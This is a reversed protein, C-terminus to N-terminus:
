YNYNESQSSFKQKRYDLYNQLIITASVADIISKRKEGRTNTQNLYEHATVTTKREDWFNINIDIKSKLKEGLKKANKASEGLTGDMNKPLGIVVLEAKNEAIKEKIKECLIEMNKEEIIGIPFPLIEKKDCIALGTRSKGYDVAMIIM